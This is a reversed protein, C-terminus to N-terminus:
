NCWLLGRSFLGSRVVNHSILGTSTYHSLSLSLSLSLSNIQTFPPSKPSSYSSPMLQPILCLLKCLCRSLSLSLPLPPPPPKCYYNAGHSHISKTMQCLTWLFRMNLFSLHHICAGGTLTKLWWKTCQHARDTFVSWNMGCLFFPNREKERKSERDRWKTM